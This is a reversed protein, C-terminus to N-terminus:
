ACGIRGSIKYREATILNSPDIYCTGKIQTPSILALNLLTDGLLPTLPNDNEPLWISSLQRYEFQGAGERVEITNLAYVESTSAWTGTTRTWLIELRVLENSLVVGLPLGSEPDTGGTLVTNDSERYYTFTASVDPNANYDQFVMPKLNAYRVSTGNLTANTYVYFHMSWGATNLYRYWDNNLGNQKLANNYFANRVDLPADPRGLWDEWRVKFGYLGLVGKLTGSDLAAYYNAGVKNKSNGTGLKFGRLANFNYQQPSPYQTLDIAYRDLLYQFGDSDRQILIGYILGTPIPITASVATDVQFTIKALIDDEVRMDVGCSAPTDNEDQRHDLFGINMGAFEGIPEVFTQLTGFDLLLCVRNSQNTVETQDAVNVWLIYNRETEDRSEMFAAFAANPQFEAEFTIQDAATNEFRINKVDMTAGDSSYGLRVTPDIVNSVAFVDSFTSVQGGTNIKTNKYFGNPLNKYDTEETPIWAFGFTCKTAGTINTVGDIVARVKINNQYDLKVVQTGGLNQYDVSTVTFDNPLGNFNENFWGTNGLQKTDNMDNEVFVNPNNYAPFGIIKYNDTVSEIDFTQDPSTLNEFTNIDEFFSSIMFIVEISYYHKSVLTGGAQGIYKLNCSAVSMGSQLSLFTMPIVDNVLMTDTDKADFESVTGDIFSALNLSNADSNKMHGYAFKIGQPRKASVIFCGHIKVDAFQAPYINSQLAGAGLTTNSSKMQSGNIETITGNVTYVSLVNTSIVTKAFKLVFVDGVDFGQEKWTSGDNLTFVNPEEMFLSHVTNFNIAAEFECLLELKQWVGVNGMLWTINNDLPREIHTYKRTLVKVPM